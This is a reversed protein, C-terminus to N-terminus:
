NVIRSGEIISKGEGALPLFDDGSQQKVFGLISAFGDIPWRMVNGKV